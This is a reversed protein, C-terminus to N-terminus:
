GPHQEMGWKVSFWACWAVVSLGVVSLVAEWM